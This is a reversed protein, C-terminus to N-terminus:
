CRFATLLARLRVKERGLLIIVSDFMEMLGVCSGAGSAWIFVWRGAGCIRSQLM